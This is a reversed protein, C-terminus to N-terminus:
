RDTAPLSTDLYLSWEHNDSTVVDFEIRDGLQGHDFWEGPESYAFRDVVQGAKRVAISIPATTGGIMFMRRPGAELEVASTRDTGVGDFRIGNRLRIGPIEPPDHEAAAPPLSFM